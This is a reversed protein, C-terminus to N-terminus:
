LIGIVVEQNVDMGYPPSPAADCGARVWRWTVWQLLTGEGSVSSWTM